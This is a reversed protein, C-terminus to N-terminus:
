GLAPIEVNPPSGFTDLQLNTVGHHRCFELLGGWFSNEAGVAPLSPIELTRSLRGTRLFAGCGCDLGGSDGRLGLVWAAYGIQRMSAFFSVTAFPNAPLLAGLEAVINGEAAPVAIFHTGM